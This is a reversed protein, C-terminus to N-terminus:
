TNFSLKFTRCKLCMIPLALKHHMVPQSWCRRTRKVHRSKICQILLRNIAPYLSSSGLPKYYIYCKSTTRLGQASQYKSFFFILFLFFM